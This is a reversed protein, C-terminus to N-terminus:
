DEGENLRETQGQGAKGQVFLLGGGQFTEMARFGERERQHSPLGPAREAENNSHIECGGEDWGPAGCRSPDLEIQSSLRPRERRVVSLSPPCVSLGDLWGDDMLLECRM